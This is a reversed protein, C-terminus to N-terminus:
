TETDFSLQIKLSIIKRNRQKQHVYKIRYFYALYKFYNPKTVKGGSFKNLFFYAFTQSVYEMLIENELVLVVWEREKSINSNPYPYVLIQSNQVLDSWPM